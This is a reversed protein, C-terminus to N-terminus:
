TGVWREQDGTVYFEASIEFAVGTARQHREIFLSRPVGVCVQDRAREGALSRAKAM